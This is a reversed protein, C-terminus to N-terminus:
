AVVGLEGPERDLVAVDRELESAVAECADYHALCGATADCELLGRVDPTCAREVYYRVLDALEGLADDLARIRAALRRSSAVRRQLVEAASPHCERAIALQVELRSPECDALASACRRKEIALEVYRDLLPEADAFAAPDRDAIEELLQGLEELDDSALDTKDLRLQRRERRKRRVRRAARVARRRRIAPTQLAVFLASLTTAIALALLSALALASLAGVLVAVLAAARRPWGRVLRDSAARRTVLVRNDM